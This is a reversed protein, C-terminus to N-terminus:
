GEEALHKQLLKVATTMEEDTIEFADPNLADDDPYRDELTQGTILRFKGGIEELVRKKIDRWLIDSVAKQHPVLDERNIHASLVNITNNDRCWGRLEYDWDDAFVIQYSFSQLGTLQMVDSKTSKSKKHIVDLIDITSADGSLAKRLADSYNYEKM